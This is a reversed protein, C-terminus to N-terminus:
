TRTISCVSGATPSVMQAATCDTHSEAWSPEVSIGSISGGTRVGIRAANGILIDGLLSADFDRKDAGPKVLVVVDTNHDHRLALGADHLSDHVGIRADLPRGFRPSTGALGTDERAAVGIRDFESLADTGKTPRQSRERLHRQEGLRLTRRIM